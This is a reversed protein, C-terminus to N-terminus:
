IQKYENNINPAVKVLKITISLHRLIFGLGNKSLLQNIKPKAVQFLM